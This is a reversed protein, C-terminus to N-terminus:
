SSAQQLAQQLSPDIEIIGTMGLQSAAAYEELLKQQASVPAAGNAPVRTYTGDAQREWPQCNDALYLELDELIRKRHKPRSIPFAVEVRRFFNREMWDASACFLEDDGNNFFYYVRSHELFRGVISRVRINHSLGA